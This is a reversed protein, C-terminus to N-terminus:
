RVIKLNGQRRLGRVKEIWEDLIEQARLIDGWQENDMAEACHEPSLKPLSNRVQIVSSTIAARLKAQKIANDQALFDNLPADALADQTERVKRFAPDVNGTRDMAEVAERAAQRVAPAAAPDSAATVVHRAKALSTAGMGVAKAVRTRTKDATASQTRTAPATAMSTPALKAGVEAGGSTPEQFDLPVVGVGALRTAAGGKRNGELRREAARAREVAEIREAHAVAESPAFPERETNEEGEALLAELEDNLSEAIHAKISTWGLRKAAEIRRGGAVLVFREGDRRVVIPQLLTRERISEALSAINQMLKRSRDRIQIQDLPIDQVLM